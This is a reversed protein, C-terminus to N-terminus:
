PTDESNDTGSPYRLRCVMASLASTLAQFHSIEVPTTAGQTWSRTEPDYIEVPKIGRGGLLYFKKGAKVFANEHRKKPDDRSEVLTWQGM